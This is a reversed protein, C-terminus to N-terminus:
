DSRIATLPDVATARRMPVICAVIATGVLLLGGLVFSTADTRDIGYIMHELLKTGWRAGILGIAGGLLALTTGQWLISRAVHRRTAGLAIRIGIERTRQAVSFAMVGYLGVAALVLALGTFAVLLIMTFRPGAISRAMATEIDAIRPPPLTADLQSVISRVAPIPDKGSAARVIVVPSFGEQDGRYLMPAAAESTLGGTFADAAVGVITEWSGQGNFVVRLRKGVPSQGPWYKRALGENVVVQAAAESTDTIASGELIRIGMTRFYNPEVGNFDIFSTTGMPPEPQGEIQLAGITFSRSPPAGAAVTVAEVGSTTRLREALQQLLAMRVAPNPYATRSMPIAVSYLGAPNFGPEIRQLHVMSRVLLMAGVLLVMSVAMESTVVLSRLRQQRRSQSATLAGSKLADHASTRAAQWAGLLGVVLGTLTALGATVLMTYGDIRAVQLEPLNDPRMAVLIQLGARGAIIGGVCGAAALLLSETLLQRVLRIRNAGLATRIALERQRTATRALVLHTVNGCAILLVLAVAGSLMVLSDRFRVLESPSTLKTRFDQSQKAATSTAADIADLERRAAELETGRRVRGLVSLGILNDNIDLPLWVDTLDAGLRPLRLAAPMVGVITYPQRELTIPKGIINPDGGFRVRWFPESILVVRQRTKVDNEDFVRGILPRQGAFAPFSPLINAAHVIETTGGAPQMARDGQTYAEISEFATAGERWARVLPPNPTVQVQMGTSNGKTPEQYIIAIRDANPYPLPRLLLTNVVSFVATNAGIGLALTVVAVATWGKQRGLTRWAFRIDHVFADVVHARTMRRERRSTIAICEARASALDGLRRTAARRAEPESLGREMYDRARMEIHFALEDEVDAAARPGWFRLYRRATAARKAHPAPAQQPDNM